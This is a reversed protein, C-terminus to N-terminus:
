NAIEHKVTNRQLNEQDHCYHQPKGSTQITQHLHHKM